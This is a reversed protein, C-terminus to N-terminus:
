GLVSHGVQWNRDWLNAESAQRVCFVLCVIGPIACRWLKFGLGLCLSRIGRGRGGRM